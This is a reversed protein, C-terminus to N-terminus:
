SGQGEKLSIGLAACLRRVDGRTKAYGIMVVEQSHGGKDYCEVFVSGDGCFGVHVYDGDVFSGRDAPELHYLRFFMEGSDNDDPLGGVSRLWEPTHLEADDERHEALYAQALKAGARARDMYDVGAKDSLCLEAAERLEDSM